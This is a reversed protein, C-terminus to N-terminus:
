RSRVSRFIDSGARIIRGLVYLLSYFIIRTWEIEADFNGAMAPLVEFLILLIAVFQLLNGLLALRRRWRRQSEKEEPEERGAKRDAVRQRLPKRPRKM